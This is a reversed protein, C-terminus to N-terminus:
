NNHKRVILRTSDVRIVEVTEGVAILSDDASIVRWDDGEVLARGTAQANDVVETVRGTKGTLADVNTRVDRSSKHGFKLMLPRVTFFATATGVSFLILQTSFSADLGAGLASLLCGIAISMAIFSPTFIEVIGFVLAILVWIHWPELNM